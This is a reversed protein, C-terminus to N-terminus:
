HHHMDTPDLLASKLGGKRVECHLWGAKRQSQTYNHRLQITWKDCPRNRLSTGGYAPLYLHRLIRESGLCSVHLPCIKTGQVHHCTAMQSMEFSTGSGWGLDGTSTILQLPATLLFAEHMVYQRRIFPVLACWCVYLTDSNPRSNSNLLCISQEYQLARSFEAYVLHSHSESLVM